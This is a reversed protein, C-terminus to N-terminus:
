RPPPFKELMGRVAEGADRDRAQPDPSDILLGTASARWIPENTEADLFDLVLRGQEYVYSYDRGQKSRGYRWNNIERIRHLQVSILFDPSDSMKAYGKIKMEEDIKRRVRSLVLEEESSARDDPQWDYSKLDSFEAEECYDSVTRIGTTSCSTMLAMMMAVLIINAAKM